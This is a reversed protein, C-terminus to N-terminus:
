LANCHMPIQHYIENDRELNRWNKGTEDTPNKPLKEPARQSSSTLPRHRTKNAAFKHADLARNSQSQYHNQLLFYFQLQGETECSFPSFRTGGTTNEPFLVLLTANSKRAYSSPYWCPSRWVIGIMISPLETHIIIRHNNRNQLYLNSNLKM